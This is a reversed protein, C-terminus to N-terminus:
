ASKVVKKRKPLIPKGDKDRRSGARLWALWTDLFAKHVKRPDPGGGRENNYGHIQRIKNGAMEITVYPTNPMKVKRLFLITCVGKIHREAYGGVCHCLVRGEKKISAATVPFVIRLGDLEFCYKKMRDAGKFAGREEVADAQQELYQATVWDHSAQLDEPFLVRSHELCMGMLYAAELYDRYADFVDVIDLWPLDADVVCNRELYHTLRWPELHYHRCFSLFYRATENGWIRLFAAAEAITWRLSFWRRALNRLELVLMPPKLTLLEQLETSSLGMAERIDTKEWCMADAFKKRTSILAEVPEGLGAKVLMEVQRPYICYATMFSVFDCFFRRDLAWHSFYCSYRTVPCRKVASRHLIFYPEYHYWYISGEKFPEQVLKRQGLSNREHTIWGKDSWQYDVQMVDGAAFRYSSSLFYKPPATLSEETEYSKNLVVADAYLADEAAHLLLTCECLNLQKRKGAKRLDKMTAGRGCWPCFYEANHTLSGLLEREWPYETRKPSELFKIQGCCSTYFRVGTKEPRFFLYHPFVANMGAIDGSTVKPWAALIEREEPTHKDSM